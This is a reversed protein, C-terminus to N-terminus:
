YWVIELAQRYKKWLDIWSLNVSYIRTPAMISPELSVCINVPSVEERTHIDQSIDKIWEEQKM